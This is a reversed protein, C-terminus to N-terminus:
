VAPKVAQRGMLKWDGGKKVWVLLVLLKVTGPKGSDNTVATLLHRVLATKKYIAITQGTIEINVFDSKGSIIKSVFVTKSEIHGSSHGYSLDTTTIRSLTSSDADVMAKHLTTVASLLKQECKSQANAVTALLGGLLLVLFFKKM